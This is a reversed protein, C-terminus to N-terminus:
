AKRAQELLAPVASAPFSVSCAESMVNLWIGKKAGSALELIDLGTMSMASKLKPMERMCAEALDLRTFVAVFDQAGKPGFCFAIEPNKEEVSVVFVDAQGFKRVWGPLLEHAGMKIAGIGATLVDDNGGASVAELERVFDKKFEDSLNERLLPPEAAPKESLPPPINKKRWFM